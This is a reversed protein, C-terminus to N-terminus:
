RLGRADWMRLAFEFDAFTTWDAPLLDPTIPRHHPNGRRVLDTLQQALFERQSLRQTQDLQAPKRIVTDEEDVPVTTDVDNLTRRADQLWRDLPSLGDTASKKM